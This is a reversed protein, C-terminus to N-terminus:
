AAGEQRRRRNVQRLRARSITTLHWAGCVCRYPRLQGKSCERKSWRRAEAADPLPIKGPTPCPRPDSM